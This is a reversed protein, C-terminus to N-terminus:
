GSRDTAESMIDLNKIVLLVQAFVDTTTRDQAQRHEHSAPRVNLHSKIRVIEALLFNTADYVDASTVNELSYNPVSSAEIGLLSQLHIIKYAARVVQQAVAMPQKRNEVPPPEIELRIELKAAILAMEDHVRMVHLYVDNPTTSRGVLGDLLLSAYILNGYVLSPAKGGAFPAAQITSKIVMQRKVRRLEEIIARIAHYVDSQDVVKVPINRVEVPIMGLRRQLRATKELLELCKTYAHTPAQHHQVTTEAPRDTINMSERLVYIESILDLTAQYVHSPTIEDTNIHSFRPMSRRHLRVTATEGARAIMEHIGDEEATDGTALESDGEVSNEKMEMSQDHDVEEDGDGFFDLVSSVIGDWFSEDADRSDSQDESEEGNHSAVAEASQAGATAPILPASLVVFLLVFSLLLRTTM